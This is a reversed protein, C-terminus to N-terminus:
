EASEDAADVAAVGPACLEETIRFANFGGSRKLGSRIEDRTLAMCRQADRLVVMRSILEAAPVDDKRAKAKMCLRQGPAVQFTGELNIAGKVDGSNCETVRFWSDVSARLTLESATANEFAVTPAKVCAVLSTGCLLALVLSRLALM